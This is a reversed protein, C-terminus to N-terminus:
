MTIIDYSYFIQTEVSINRILSSFNLFTESKFVRCIFPVFYFSFKRKLIFLLITFFYIIVFHIKKLSLQLDFRM